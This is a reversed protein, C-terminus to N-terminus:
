LGCSAARERLLTRERSNQTISAARELESRAEAFRGLKILLDARVCPLLYYQTLSQEEVLDDVLRLAVEPGSKMGIAVARNLQVIPSPAIEALKEYLSVILSWDTEEFSGARAHCAAIGAQLFYAGPEGQCGEARKLASLGRRVLIRDWLSRNQDQLLIPQGEPGKRAAFRSAQLEMLAILGHAEKKEPELECLIRGLRMADRCLEPRFWDDGSTASYGENFIFYIVELVSEFRASRDEGQPVEFPAGAEALTRKARVIRQAIASESTLFARAIEQTTLGGVMRLTFAVRADTPLAPHCAVFLLRLTDDDIQEELAVAADSPSLVQEREAEYGLVELKRELTRTRRIHDIGRRKAATMLWAGPSEPIGTRPWQELALVLADQALDEALGVDRVMRALGAIVRLSEFRWVAEITRAIDTAV